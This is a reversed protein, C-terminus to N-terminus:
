TSGPPWSRPTSGSWTGWRSSRGEGRRCIAEAESLDRALPKEVLVAVGRRLLPEAVALHSETPVAVVAADLDDPLEEPSSVATTGYAEAREGALAADADCVAVLDVDEMGSLIRVHHKGFHGAGVVAVRLRGM